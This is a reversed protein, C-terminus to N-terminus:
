LLKCITIVESLKHHDKITLDHCYRRILSYLWQMLIMWTAEERFDGLACSIFHAVFALVPDSCKQLVFCSSKLALKINLIIICWLYFKICELSFIICEMVICIILMLMLTVTIYHSTIISHTLNYIRFITFTQKCIM